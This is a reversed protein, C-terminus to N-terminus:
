RLRCVHEQRLVKVGLITDLRTISRSNVGDWGDMYRINMNTDEDKMSDSEFGTKPVHLKPSAIAIAERHFIIGERGTTGSTSYKILNTTGSIEIAVNKYEGESILAPSVVLSQAASTAAGVATLVVFQQLFPLQARTLPNYAYTGSIAFVDGVNITAGTSFGGVSLTATEAWGSTLVATTSGGSITPSGAWTGDTHVPSSNSVAFDIGAFYGIRGKRYIDSVEKQANFLTAQVNALSRNQKPTLIGWRDDDDPCGYSTLIENAELITDSTISVNYQGVSNAVSDMVKGYVYSDIQSAMGIVAPTIFRKSFNEIRLTKEVDSFSLPALFNEDIALAVSNETPLNATWVMSGRTITPLIPRRIFIKDGIQSAGNAFQESYKWDCKSAILCNNTLQYLAEKTIKTSTLLGTNQSLAM